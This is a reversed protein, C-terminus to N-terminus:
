NEEYDNFYPESQYSTELYVTSAGFLQRLVLNAM